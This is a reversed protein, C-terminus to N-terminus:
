QIWNTSKFVPWVTNTFTGCDYMYKLGSVKWDNEPDVGPYDKLRQILYDVQQVLNYTMAGSQAANLQDYEPWRQLPPCAPGYCIEAPHKGVSAGHIDPQFHRFM